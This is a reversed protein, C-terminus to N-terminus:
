RMSLAMQAPTYAALALGDGRGGKAPGTAFQRLPGIVGRRPADRRRLAIVHDHALAGHGDQAVPDDNAGAPNAAARRLFILIARPGPGSQWLRPDTM